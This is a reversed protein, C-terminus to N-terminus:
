IIFSMIEQEIIQYLFSCCTDSETMANEKEGERQRLLIKKCVSRFIFVLIETCIIKVFISNVACIMYFLNYKLIDNM